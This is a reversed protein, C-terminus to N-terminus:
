LPSAPRLRPSSASGSGGLARPGHSHVAWLLAGKRPLVMLRRSEPTVRGFLPGIIVM